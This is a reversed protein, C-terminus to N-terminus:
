MFSRYSKVEPNYNNILSQYFEWPLEGSAYIGLTGLVQRSISVCDPSPKSIDPNWGHRVIGWLVTKLVNISFGESVARIKDWNVSDEPVQFVLEKALEYGGNPKDGLWLDECMWHSKINSDVNNILGDIAVQCHQLPSGAWCYVWRLCDIGKTTFFKVKVDIMKIKNDLSTGRSVRNSPIEEWTPPKLPRRRQSRAQPRSEM